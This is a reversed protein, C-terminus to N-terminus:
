SRPRPTRRIMWVCAAILATSFTSAILSLALGVVGAAHRHAEYLAAVDVAALRRAERAVLAGLITLAVGASLIALRRGDLDSGSKVTLWGVAQIGTGATALMAYPMALMGLTAVRAPPDLALMWLGAEVASTALGLIAMARLQRAAPDLDVPELLRRGRYLQWALVTALTPFSATIAYGLRPWMEADRFVWRGSAHVDSWTMGRVGMVHDETWAWATGLLGALVLCTVAARAVPGREAMPRIKIWYLLGAAAILAPPMLLFRHYGLLNDTGFPRHYLVQLFLLPALGAAITLGLMIPMGHRLVKVILALGSQGPRGGFRRRVGPVLAGAVLMIGGGLVYQMFIAYIAATAVFLTLYMATPWPFGFPFLRHM